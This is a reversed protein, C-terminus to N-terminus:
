SPTVGWEAEALSGKSQIDHVIAGLENVVQMADPGPIGVTFDFADYLGFLATFYGFPGSIVRILRHFFGNEEQWANGFSVPTGTSQQGAIQVSVTGRRGFRSLGFAVIGAGILLNIIGAGVNKFLAFFGFLAWLGGLIILWTMVRNSVYTRMGSITSIQTEMVLVSGRRRAEAHAHFILRSNTVILKGQGQKLSRLQTVDYSRWITENLALVVNTGPIIPRSSPIPAPVASPAGLTRPGPGVDGVPTDDVEKGCKSCIVESPDLQHGCSECFAM